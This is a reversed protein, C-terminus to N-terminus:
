DDTKGYAEEWDLLSWAPYLFANRSIKSELKSVQRKLKYNESKLNEIKTEMEAITSPFLWRALSHKDSM